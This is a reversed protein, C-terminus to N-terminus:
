NIPRTKEHNDGNYVYYLLISGSKIILNIEM